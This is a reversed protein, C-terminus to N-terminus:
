GNLLEGQPDYACPKVLRAPQRVGNYFIEVTEGERAFAAAVLGLAVTIGLTPSYCASTVYGATSRGDRTLVHAGSITRAGPEVLELGTFQLRDPDRGVELSLSRRGIFDGPKKEIARAWGLDQPMTNGDTDVGVHLYGKETRMVTLAEIGFPTLAYSKGVTMLTQWLARGWRAPVSIEYSLEGNFSARLVRAPVGCLTGERLQMHAFAERQFDIDSELQELVDRARPGCLMFTAWQITQNTLLVQWHPWECQLWADMENYMATAGGSTTHVLFRDEALCVVVGDDVVIGQENLMLGYRVGGVKLSAINNLYVRDLFARADPGTVEIKGLPSYDLLGANQRVALVERAIAQEETEGDRPYYEPRKWPGYDAFHANLQVHAAHAPLLQYPSYLAGLEVGGFNGLSIPHYPPRFRTTGVEPIERQTERAMIALANVNSTKGQDISMGATTYRKLHEVSVFNERRALEIDSATVDYQFDVWQYESSVDPTVWLDEIHLPSRFEGNARGVVEVARSAEAPVFCSREHDFSLKGGAQSYLHVAPTWGGSMALLDCNIRQEDGRLSDREADLDRIRLQRIWRRGLTRTVAKGLYLDIGTAVARQRLADGVERRVDIIAAVGVGAEWLALATEWASDNNCYFAIRQGLTLGYRHTYEAVASALLIGPRDNHPFVLPREHAGTALIVRAAHIRWLRERPLQTDAQPGLHNSVREVASLVNHDYFGSVTTRQLVTVRPEQALLAMMEEVGARDERAPSALRSGGAEEQEDVLLIRQVGEDLARKVAELGSRGAGVVLLDTHVNERQYRQPDPETPARGLGAMRRVVPEWFHWSPWMFTKYYFSAPLLKKFPGLLSLLDFRVSPWANQGRARLGPYLPVLTARANPETWAGDELQVFANVEEKGAAFVGRPRHIKFSRGVIAVGNALLASALTDGRYGKYARGDFFFELQQTTDVRAGPLRHPVAKM